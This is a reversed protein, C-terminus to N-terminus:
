VRFAEYFEAWQVQIAPRTITFNTWWARADGLLQQATFLTKQNKTCHLLEFKSEIIHLWHDAELPQGLETFTRLKKQSFTLPQTALFKV